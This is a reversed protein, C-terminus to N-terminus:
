VQNSGRSKRNKKKVLRRKDNVNANSTIQQLLTAAPNPQAISTTPVPPPPSIPMVPSQIVESAPYTSSSFSQSQTRSRGGMRNLQTPPIGLSYEVIEDDFRKRKKSRSSSNYQFCLM